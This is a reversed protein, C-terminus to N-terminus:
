GRKLQSSTKIRLGNLIFIKREASLLEDLSQAGPAYRTFYSDIRARAREADRKLVRIDRLCNHTMGRLTALDLHRIEETSLKLTPRARLVGTVVKMLAAGAEGDFADLRDALSELLPIRINELFQICISLANRPSRRIRWLVQALDNAQAYLITLEHEFGIALCAARDLRQEETEKRRKRDAYWTYLLGISTALAAIGEATLSFNQFATTRGWLLFVATLAAGILASLTVLAAWGLKKIPLNIM